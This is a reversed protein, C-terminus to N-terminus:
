LVVRNIRVPVGNLSPNPNTNRSPNRNPNLSPSEDLGPGKTPSPLVLRALHGPLVPLVPLVLLVLLVPLVPLVLLVLLSPLVRPNLM